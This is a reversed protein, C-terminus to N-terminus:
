CPRKDGPFCMCLALIALVSAEAIYLDLYSHAATIADSPRCANEPFPCPQAINRGQNPVVDKAFHLIKLLSDGVNPPVLGIWQPIASEDEPSYDVRAVQVGCKQPTCTTDCRLFIGGRCFASLVADFKKEKKYLFVKNKIEKM